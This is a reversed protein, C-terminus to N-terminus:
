DDGTKATDQSRQSCSSELCFDDDRNAHECRQGRAGRPLDLLAFVSWHGRSAVSTPAPDHM